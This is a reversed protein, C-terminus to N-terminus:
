QGTRKQHQNRYIKEERGEKFAAYRAAVFLYDSLRNMYRGVSEDAIAEMIVPVVRREARRCVSRAVHLASAAKGGSPLIFNRLPPLLSDLQDIWLELEEALAGDIDFVTKAIKTDSATTRPTAVNSGIDQLLCQIKELNDSLGNGAEECYERALGIHSSLEDTSGLAEFVPDDKPRREGTFLASTGRDGTRTYVRAKRLGPPRVSPADASTNDEITTPDPM